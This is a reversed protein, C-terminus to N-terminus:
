RIYLFLNCLGEEGSTNVQILIKLPDKNPIMLKQCANNLNTAIKKSDITQIM